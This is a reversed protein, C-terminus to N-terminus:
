GAIGEGSLDIPASDLSLAALDGEESYALVLRPALPGEGALLPGDVHVRGFRDTRAEALVENNRALVTVDANALPRATQLSRLVIDLGDAGRYTTLALDSFLIWRRASAPQGTFSEGEKKQTVEVFYAGPELQGLASALPFVTTTPANRAGE